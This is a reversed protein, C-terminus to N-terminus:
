VSTGSFLNTHVKEVCVVNHLLLDVRIRVNEPLASADASQPHCSCLTRSETGDHELVVVSNVDTDIAFTLLEERARDFEVERNDTM